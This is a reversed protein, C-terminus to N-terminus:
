FSLSAQQFPHTPPNLAKLLGEEWVKLQGEKHNHNNSPTAAAPPRQAAESSGRRWWDVQPLM